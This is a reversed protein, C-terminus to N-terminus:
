LAKMTFSYETIPNVIFILLLIFIEIVGGLDGILEILSYVERQHFLGEKEALVYMEYLVDKYIGAQNAYVLDNNATDYFIGEFTPIGISFWISDFLNVENKRIRVNNVKLDRTNFGNFTLQKYSQRTPM